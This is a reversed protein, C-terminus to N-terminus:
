KKRMPKGHKIPPMSGVKHPHLKTGSKKIAM